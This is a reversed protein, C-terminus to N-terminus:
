SVSVTYLKEESTGESDTAVIKISYDVAYRLKVSASTETTNEALTSWNHASVKKFYYSYTYPAEGGEAAGTIYLRSGATLETASVTSNNVLPTKPTETIEVDLNKSTMGGESDKIVVKFIFDGLNKLKVSATSTSTFPTGITIWNIASAKKYYFAYTYDGSGKEAEGYVYIRTGPLASQTSVTSKNVMDTDHYDESVSLAFQRSVIVNNEDIIDIKVNFEGASKPKFAGTSATGFETGLITWGKANTRKYYFAYRYGSSGTASGYFFVRTGPKVGTASITSNNKFSASKGDSVSFVFAKDEFDGTSDTVRIIADFDGVAVPAFSAINPNDKYGSLYKWTKATTRKYMFQYQLEGSGGEAVGTFIIRSGLSIAQTNIYSNNVIPDGNRVTIDFIKEATTGYSDKVVTKIQYKGIETLTLRQTNDSTFETGLTNWTDSDVSKYYFAYTFPAKGGQAAGTITVTDSALLDESSVTSVNVLEDVHECTFTLTRESFAGQADAALVRVVYEGATDPVVTFEAGLGAASGITTESKGPATVYVTFVYPATGSIAGASVSVGRGECTLEESLGSINYLGTIEIFTNARPPQQLFVDPEAKDALVALYNFRCGSSAFSITQSQEGTLITKHMYSGVFCSGSGGQYFDGRLELLGDSVKNYASSYNSYIYFDGSVLMYDNAHNMTLIGDSNSYSVIEGESNKKPTRVSYDGDIIVSGNSPSLTGSLHTYDGKVELRGGNASVNGNETMNGNVTLKNGALDLSGYQQFDNLEVDGNVTSIRGKVDVNTNPTSYLVAIGSDSSAFTVTQKKSGSFIVKHSSQANFCSGSGGQEFNGRLELTGDSMKNYASTYNSFIYFDGCVLMYDSPKTMKLVADSNKYGNLAGESDYTPTRMDYKGDINLRGGGLELTGAQHQLNGLVDIKGAVTINGNEVLDGFITFTAGEASLNGYQVFNNVKTGDTVRLIRGKLINIDTNSNSVTILSGFGSDGAGEFYVDQASKGTLLVKHDVGANFCSGSGGQYFSGRLELTGASMKNYANTYASYIYFDGDVFMYDDPNTMKLVGDSTKYGNLNGESDYTPIRMDYKGSVNLKGGGLNLTGGQHQINGLVDVTGKVTINGNEILNGTITLHAGEASLSGYQVFDGLITGDTVRRISGKTINVDSNSSEDTVLTGFGSSGAGEFYITQTDDGTLLVYHEEGADFCSGSGGQYFDGRLELTGYTLKNYASTYASYVYFDDGVFMFSEPDTMKIVGESVSYSIIKGQEDLNPKRMDYKGNIKLSGGKIELTGYTHQMSGLVDVSGTIYVNGNEVLDGEVTLSGDEVNMSGYQSFDHVTVDGVVQRVRGKTIYVDPNAYENATLTGFGSSGANEFYVTQAGEGTFLIKHGVGADFCSGDGAQEFNGRLELTGASFKNYASTYASAIYFDGGVLMYDTEDNMIIYAETSKYGVLEGDSYEPSALIYSGDIEIRAGNLDLWGGKHGYDGGVSLKGGNANINGSQILNETVQLSNGNLDLSGYQGFSRLKAGNEVSLIRGKEIVVDANANDTAALTGFGSDGSNALTVVQTKTGTFLIRHDKTANFCSGSGGQEFNGGLELTGASFKNYASGYNSAIYFDGGVKMYDAPKEMVLVGNSNAYSVVKGEEDLEPVRMDYTGGINLTGGGLKLTGNQHQVSGAVNITGAVTIDGNEVLDGGVTFVADAANLSGYQVFDHVAAAGSVKLIRGKLIDVDPNSDQSSILTGFGSSGANAFYVTQTGDGTFMVKHGEAASFCSGDGAQEFNGGLELTGASFKNYASGYNSAIYFDGGVLMHDGADNMVFTADTSKYGILEGDSYEPSAMRYSGAIDVTGNNLDIYGKIQEYNGGVTLRGANANVDGYQTFDESVYLSSGGLNLTGYQAFSELKAGNEAALIRGRQIVVSENANESTGLTGFGSSGAGAFYVTQIGDGTFLVRHNKGAPFADTAGQQEFNGQLELTGASLVNYASSYNSSYYCNGMVCMYGDANDMRLVADAGTYYLFENTSSYNPTALCYDGGVTLRGNGIKLQGSRHQFNGDIYVESDSLDADGALILDGVVALKYGNLNLPGSIGITHDIVTDETLSLGTYYVVDDTAAQATLSAAPLLMAAALVVALTRKLKM